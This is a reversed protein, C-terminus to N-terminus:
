KMAQICQIKDKIDVLSRIIEIFNDDKIMEECTGNSDCECIDIGVDSFLSYCDEIISEFGDIDFDEM